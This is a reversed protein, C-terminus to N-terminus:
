CMAGDCLQCCAVRNYVKFSRSCMGCFNPTQQQEDQSAWSASASALSGNVIRRKDERLRTKLMWVLKKSQACVVAKWCCLLGNTASIIAVADAIRGSAEVFGKMYVDVVGNGLEKFIYCSSIRGRVAAKKPLEFCTPIDVSHMLFYGIREGTRPHPIVGTSELVVLDRPLVLASVAAPNGKVLWKLGLFRYPEQPSPGHIQALVQGDVVEDQAYHAKLLMLGPDPTALGYMVDDLTGSLTGVMLLKPLNWEEAPISDLIAASLSSSHSSSSSRSSASAAHVRQLQDNGCSTSSSANSASSVSIGSALGRHVNGDPDHRRDKYVTLNERSKVTKWLKKSVQRQQVDNYLDYDALTDGVLGKALQEYRASETPSLAVPPFMATPTPFKM